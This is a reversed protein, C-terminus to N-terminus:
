TVTLAHLAGYCCHALGCQGPSMKGPIHLIGAVNLLLDLHKHTASVQAAAKAISAEDTCDLQVIDLRGSSRAQLEGLETAQDPNRCAAIVRCIASASKSRALLGMSAQVQGPNWPHM